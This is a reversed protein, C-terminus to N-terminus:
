TTVGVPLLLLFARLISQAFLWTFIESARAKGADVSGGRQSLFRLSLYMYIMVVSRALFVGFVLTFRNALLSMFSLKLFFGPM